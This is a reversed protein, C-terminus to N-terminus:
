TTIKQDHNNLGMVDLNKIVTETTPIISNYTFDIQNKITGSWFKGMGRLLFKMAYAPIKDPEYASGKCM